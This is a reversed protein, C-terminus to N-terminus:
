QNSLSVEIQKEVKNICKNTRTHARVLIQVWLWPTDPHCGLQTLQRAYFEYLTLVLNM